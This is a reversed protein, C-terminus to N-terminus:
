RRRRTKHVRTGKPPAAPAAGPPPPPPQGNEAALREAKLWAAFAARSAENLQEGGEGPALLEPSIRPGSGGRQSSRLALTYGQELEQQVRMFRQQMLSIARLDHGVALLPGDPGLRLATYAIPITPGSTVPLNVERRRALGEHRAESLLADIKHRTDATVTDALQRGMWDRTAAALRSAPGHAVATVAGAADLVLALDCALTAFAQALSPAYAAMAALESLHPTLATM